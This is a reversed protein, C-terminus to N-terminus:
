RNVLGQKGKDLATFIASFLGGDPASEEMPKGDQYILIDNILSLMANLREDDERAWTDDVCCEICKGRLWDPFIAGHNMIFIALVHYSIFYDDYYMDNEQKECFKVLRDLNENIKVAVHKTEKPTPGNDYFRDWFSGGLGLHNQLGCLVDSPTDGAMATVGWWGM